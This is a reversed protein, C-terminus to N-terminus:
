SRSRARPRRIIQISPPLWTLQRLWARRVSLAGYKRYLTSVSIDMFRALTRPTVKKGNHRLWNAVSLLEKKELAAKKLRAVYFDADTIGLRVYTDAAVCQAEFITKEFKKIKVRYEPYFSIIADLVKERRTETYGNRLRRWPFSAVFEKTPKRIRWHGGRTRYAGPVDGRACWREFTRRSIGFRKRLRATLTM